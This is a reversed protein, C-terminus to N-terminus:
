QEHPQKHVLAFLIPHACDTFAYCIAEVIQLQPWAVNDCTVAVEDWLNLSEAVNSIASFIRHYFWGM